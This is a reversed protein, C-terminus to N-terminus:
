VRRWRDKPVDGPRRSVPNLKSQNTIRCALTGSVRYSGYGIQSGALDTLSAINDATSAVSRLVIHSQVESQSRGGPDVLQLHFPRASQDLRDINRSHVRDDGNDLTFTDRTLLLGAAATKGFNASELRSTRGIVLFLLQCNARALLERVVRARGEDI